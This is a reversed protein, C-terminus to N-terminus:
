SLDDASRWAAASAILLATLPTLLVRPASALIWWTPDPLHIYFFFAAVFTLIAIMLPLAANRRYPAIAILVIPVIWPLGYLDYTAAKALTVITKTVAAFYVPMGAGRYYESLNHLKVFALWGGLLIAAPAAILMTRKFTRRIVLLAIIVAIAFTAGEIKTMVAGALGLAAFIVQARRDRIFTIAVIALTEFFILPPEGAGAANAIAFAYALTAAMLVATRDDRSTSRVLAVSGFLFLATAM